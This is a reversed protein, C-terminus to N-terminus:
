LRGFMHPWFDGIDNSSTLTEGPRLSKWQDLLRRFSDPFERDLFGPMRRLVYAAGRRLNHGEVLSAFADTEDDNLQLAIRAFDALYQFGKRYSQAGEWYLKFMAHFAMWELPPLLFQIGEWDHPVPRDLIDSTSIGSGIAHHIDVLVPTRVTSGDVESAFPLLDGMWRFGEAALPSVTGLDMIKVWFGLAYHDVEEKARSEVTAPSFTQTEPDYAGPWFGVTRLVAKADELADPRVCFDLDAGTRYAPDAYGVFGNATGKLAVLVVGGDAFARVVEAAVTRSLRGQVTAAACIAGLRQRTEPKLQHGYQELLAPIAVPAVQWVRGIWDALSEAEQDTMERGVPRGALVKAVDYELYAPGSGDVSDYNRENM